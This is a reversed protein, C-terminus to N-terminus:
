RFIEARCAKAQERFRRQQEKAGIFGAVLM